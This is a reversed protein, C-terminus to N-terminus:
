SGTANGQQGNKEKEPIYVSALIGGALSAVIVSLSLLEPVKVHHSLLMKTGVFALIVVLSYNIFRFKTLM